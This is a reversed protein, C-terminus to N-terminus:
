APRNLTERVAPGLKELVYPKKVYAGVGLARAQEVRETEAFGSVIIAKQGPHIEIVKGYTDLGDMGPDMIMDLVMLDVAHERAYKVAEEGSRVCVVSYELKELMARALERQEKVDDVVLISEGNGMFRSLAGRVREPSIEGREVPFYITFVTGEGERSEVDIYGLHDKVAGWVVALGLGTGSRGMVKKTYFPEFIRRREAEPIGEGEDEVTLVVYDGARVEDYGYVPKDLYRNATRMTLSGGRPMAEVANSVLNLLSKLLHVSSGSITLLDAELDVRVEVNRHYSLIREFEPSKLCEAVISNLNLVKRGPVSRRALTLLDDVIAAAREGAKMIKLANSRISAFEELDEALLESYGVIIGLVNNLDHAVGGALTGLAEMKEARLLREELKRREEEARKLGTVDRLFGFTEGPKEPRKQVCIEVDFVSGDKRRHRSEFRQPGETIIKEM